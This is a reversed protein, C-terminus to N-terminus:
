SGPAAPILSRAALRASRSWTPNTEARGSCRRNIANPKNAENQLIEHPSPTSRERFEPESGLCSPQCGLRCSGTGRAVPVPAGLGLSEPNPIRLAMSCPESRRLKAELTRIYGNTVSTLLRFLNNLIVFHPSLRKRTGGRVRGRVEAGEGWPLPSYIRTKAAKEELSLPM